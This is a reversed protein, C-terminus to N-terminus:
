ESIIGVIYKYKTYDIIGVKITKWYVLENRDRESLENILCEGLQKVLFKYSKTYELQLDNLIDDMDSFRELPSDYLENAPMEQITYKCENALILKYDKLKNFNIITNNVLYIFLIGAPWIFEINRLYVILSIISIILDYRYVKQTLRLRENINETVSRSELSDKGIDIATQTVMCTLVSIIFGYWTNKCLIWINLVLLGLNILNYTNNIKKNHGEISTM